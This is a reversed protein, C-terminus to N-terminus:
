DKYFYFRFNPLNHFHYDRENESDFRNTRSSMEVIYVFLDFCNNRDFFNGNSEKEYKIIFM